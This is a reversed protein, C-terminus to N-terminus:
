RFYYVASLRLNQNLSQFDANKLIDTLGFHYHLRVSWKDAPYYLVGATAAVNWRNLENLNINQNTDRYLENVFRNAPFANPNLGTSSDNLTILAEDNNISTASTLYSLNAGAEVGWNSSPQFILSVPLSIQQARLDFNVRAAAAPEANAERDPQRPNDQSLEETGNGSQREIVFRNNSFNLGTRLHLKRGRLPFEAIMGAFAGDLNNFADTVAGGELGWRFLGPQPQSAANMALDTKPVPLQQLGKIKLPDTLFPPKRSPAEESTAFTDAAENESPPAYKPHQNEDLIAVQENKDKKLVSLLVQNKNTKAKQGNATALTNNSQHAENPKNSSIDAGPKEKPHVGAVPHETEVQPEPRTKGSSWNWLWWASGVSLLLLLPLLWWWFAARRRKQQVPMEQDLMQRMQEWAQDIYQDDLHNDPM